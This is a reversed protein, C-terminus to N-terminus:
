RSVAIGIGIRDDHRNYDDLSSGYGTFYNIYGFFSRGSLPFTWELELSGRNDDSFDLNNRLTAVFLHRKWPYTLTLDGYGLYRDIDPNDDGKEDGIYRKKPEPIRYWVRPSVFLGGFQFFTTLYLRNWSRSREKDRGNSEHLFGLQYGKLSSNEDGYFGYVFLEPRYNTERFPKSEKFTQWWSTQTYGFAYREEFGFLNSFIDKKFSIQFETEFHKREAREGRAYVVPMLYNTHYPTLGFVGTLIQGVTEKTDNDDYSNLYRQSSKEIKDYEKVEDKIYSPVNKSNKLAGDISVLAEKDEIAMTAAKKYLEMAGQIDGNKELKSAQNYIEEINEAWLAVIYFFILLLFRM